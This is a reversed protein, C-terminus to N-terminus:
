EYFKTKMHIIGNGKKRDRLLEQYDALEALPELLAQM